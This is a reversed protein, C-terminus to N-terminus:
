LIRRTNGGYLTRIFKKYITQWRRNKKHRRRRRSFIMAAPSFQGLCQRRSWRRRTPTQARYIASGFIVECFSLLSWTESELSPMRKNGITWSVHCAYKRIPRSESNSLKPRVRIILLKLFFVKTVAYSHHHSTCTILLDLDNSSRSVSTLQEVPKDFHLSRSRTLIWMFTYALDYRTMM